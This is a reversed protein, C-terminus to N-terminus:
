KKHLLTLYESEIQKQVRKEIFNSSYCESNLSNMAQDFTRAVEEEAVANKVMEEIIANITKRDLDGDAFLQSIQLRLRKEEYTM